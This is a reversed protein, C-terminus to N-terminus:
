EDNIARAGRGSFISSGSFLFGWPKQVREPYTLPRVELPRIHASHYTRANNRDVPFLASRQPVNPKTLALHTTVGETLSPPWQGSAPKPSWRLARDLGVMKSVDAFHDSVEHGSLQCATKAKSAVNLFNDWKSYGLLQQLDRALWFEIDGDTQQAHAEFTYSLSRVVDTKM